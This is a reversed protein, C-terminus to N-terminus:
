VDEAWAQRRYSKATCWFTRTIPLGKGYGKESDFTLHFCLGLCTSLACEGPEIFAKRRKNGANYKTVSKWLMSSQKYDTQGFCHTIITVCGFAWTTCKNGVGNVIVAFSLFFITTRLACVGSQCWEDLVCRYLVPLSPRDLRSPRTTQQRPLNYSGSQLWSASSPASEEGLIQHNTSYM